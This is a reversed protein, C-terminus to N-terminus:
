FCAAYKRIIPPARGAFAGVVNPDFELPHVLCTPGCVQMVLQELWCHINRVADVPTQGVLLLKSLLALNFNCLSAGVSYDQFGCGKGGVGVQSPSFPRTFAIASTM